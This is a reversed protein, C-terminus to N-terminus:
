KENVPIVSIFERPDFGGGLVMTLLGPKSEKGARDRFWESGPDTTPCQIWLRQSIDMARFNHFHGSIWVDAMGLATQGLSQGSLYKEPNNGSQHGHFLGLM